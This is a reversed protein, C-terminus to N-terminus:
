RAVEYYSAGGFTVPCVQRLLATKAQKTVVSIPMAAELLLLAFRPEPESPMSGASIRHDAKDM